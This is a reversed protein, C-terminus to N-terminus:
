ATRSDHRASNRMSPPWHMAMAERLYDGVASWIEDLSAAKGHSAQLARLLEERDDLMGMIDAVRALGILFSWKPDRHVYSSVLRRRASESRYAAGGPMSTKIAMDPYYVSISSVLQRFTLRRVWVAVEAIYAAAAEPITLLVESGQRFGRATLAYNPYQGAEDIRVLGEASLEDLVEYVSKDFPGFHCPTFEFHPGDVLNPIERDILFLLQQIQVRNFVADAGGAALSGLVIRRRSM